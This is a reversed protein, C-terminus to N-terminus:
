SFALIPPFTTGILEMNLRSYTFGYIFLCGANKGKPIALSASLEDLLHSALFSVLFERAVNVCLNFYDTTVYSLDNSKSDNQNEVKQKSPYTRSNSEVWKAEKEIKKGSTILNNLIATTCSSQLTDPFLNPIPHHVSHPM